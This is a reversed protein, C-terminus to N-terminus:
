CIRRRPARGAKYEAYELHRFTPQRVDFAVVMYSPASETLKLLMHLFGHLAGTPVGASSQMDTLAYYARYLLSNGDIAILDAM